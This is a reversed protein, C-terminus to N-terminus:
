THPHCNLYSIKTKIEEVLKKCGGCGDRFETEAGDKAKLDKSVFKYEEENIYVNQFKLATEATTHPCTKCKLFIEM